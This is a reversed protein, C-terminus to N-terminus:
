QSCAISDLAESREITRALRSSRTHMPHGHIPKALLYRDGLWEVARAIAPSYNAVPLSELKANQKDAMDTSGNVVPSHRYVWTSLAVVYGGPLMLLAMYPGVELLVLRARRILLMFIKMTEKWYVYRIIHAEM